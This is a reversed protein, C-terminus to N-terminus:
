EMEGEALEMLVRGMPKFIKGNVGLLDKREMGPKRPAAGVLLAWSTGDFVKNMDSSAVVDALLPFACDELEMAVGRLAGQAQPIDLLQLIIPQTPGLMEGSAIRFLMSYGIQGAAGTITVRIPAKM